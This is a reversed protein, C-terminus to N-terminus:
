GGHVSVRKGEYGPNGDYRYLCRPCRTSVTYIGVHTHRKDRKGYKLMMFTYGPDLISEYGPDLLIGEYGPDLLIGENGPDLLIGEYGPDLLIGEYGPDLLIGENRPDM